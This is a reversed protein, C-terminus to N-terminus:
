IICIAVGLKHLVYYNHIVETQVATEPLATQVTIYVGVVIYVYFAAGSTSLIAVHGFGRNDEGMGACIPNSPSTISLHM